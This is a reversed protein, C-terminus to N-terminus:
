SWFKCLCINANASMLRRYRWLSLVQRSSTLRGERGGYRETRRRPTPKTTTGPPAKGKLHNTHTSRLEHAPPPSGLLDQLKALQRSLVCRSLYNRSLEAAGYIRNIYFGRALPKRQPNHRWDIQSNAAARRLAGDPAPKTQDHPQTTGRAIAM